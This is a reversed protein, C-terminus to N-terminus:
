MQSADFYIDSFDRKIVLAQLNLSCTIQWKKFIQITDSFPRLFRRAFLNNAINIRFYQYTQVRHRSRNGCDVTETSKCEYNVDDFYEGNPCDHKVWTNSDTFSEVYKKWLSKPEVRFNLQFTRLWEKHVFFILDVSNPILLIILMQRAKQILARDM